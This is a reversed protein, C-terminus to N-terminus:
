RKLTFHAKFITGDINEFRFWYDSSPMPLGQHTGDWGEEDPRLERLLKGYRDFIFVTSEPFYEGATIKWYDNIGDSNPTFFKQYGVAIVEKSLTRCRATGRVFVTYKGPEVEFQNSKQFRVGDLSYQFDDNGEMAITLTINESFHNVSVDFDLPVVTPRVEFYFTNGCVQGNEAGNVTLSYTGPETIDVMRSSALEKEQADRWSWSDFDGGDLTLFPDEPCVLYSEELDPRPLEKILIDLESLAYCDKNDIHQVRAYLKEVRDTNSYQDKVLESVGARADNGTQFYSVEFMDPDQGNLIQSDMESLDIFYLGTEDWDCQVYSANYAMPNEYIVIRRKETNIRTGIQVTASVLYEGPADYHHLPNQISATHGDGFDWAVTDIHETATISFLTTDGFCFGNARIGLDFYSTIFPPLGYTGHGTGLNIVNAKFGCAPGLEEPSEIVALKEAGAVYIKGDLALQLAGTMQSPVHLPMRSAAINRERLNFQFIDENIISIYLRDGYPSFELGYFDKANSQMLVEPNSVGGTETDFDLLEIGVFSHCAALKRGDPSTKLYGRSKFVDNGSNAYDLNFGVNSVVPNPNVGAATVLYALYSDNGWDHALVWFDEGNRHKVATLKETVTKKLLINKKVVDGLGGNLALDIESFYLGDRLQFNTTFVYYRSPHNPVPVIIGSQTSSAHGKLGAGNPMPRHNRNWVTVGDTYFLLNGMPDAMTACGEATNLAGDELVTPVGSNFDLGANSGFYWIAAERQSYGLHVFLM